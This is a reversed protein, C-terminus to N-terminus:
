PFFPHFMRAAAYTFAVLLLADVRDLIGGHGPLLTGSDKVGLTRKLASEFLDGFVAALNLVAGLLIWAWLPAHGWLLGLVVTGALCGALGGYFGAWTKNPSISPCLRAKGFYTGTYYALTDSFVAAVFVLVIEPPTFHLFFQLIMPLYILGGFFLLTHSFSAENGRRTFDRVFLLNGVWFAGLLSMLIFKPDQYKCATIVFTGFLIGTIKLKLRNQGWVMTYFEWQALASAAVVAAFLIWGGFFIALALLGLLPIATLIRKQHSSVPMDKPGDPPM